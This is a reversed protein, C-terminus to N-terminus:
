APTLRAAPRTARSKRRLADTRLSWERLARALNRPRVDAGISVAAGCRRTCTSPRPHPPMAGIRRDRLENLEIGVIPLRPRACRLSPYQDVIRGDTPIRSNASLCPVDLEAARRPPTSPSQRTVKSAMGVM